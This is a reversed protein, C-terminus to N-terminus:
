YQPRFMLLGSHSLQPTTNKREMQCDHPTKNWQTYPQYEKRQYLTVPQKTEVPDNSRNIKIVLTPAFHFNKKCFNLKMKCLRAQTASTRFPLGPLSNPHSVARSPPPFLSVGAFLGNNEGDRRSILFIAFIVCSHIVLQWILRPRM